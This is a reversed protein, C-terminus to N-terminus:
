DGAPAKNAPAVIQRTRLQIDAQTKRKSPPISEMTKPGMRQHTQNNRSLLGKRNGCRLNKNTKTQKKHSKMSLVANHPGIHCMLIWPDSSACCSSPIAAGSFPDQLSEAQYGGRSSPERTWVYGWRPIYRVNHVRVPLGFGLGRIISCGFTYSLAWCLALLRFVWCLLCPLGRGCLEPIVRAASPHCLFGCSGLGLVWGYLPM